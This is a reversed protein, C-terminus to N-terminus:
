FIKINWARTTYTLRYSIEYRIRIQHITNNVKKKFKTYYRLFFSSRKAVGWGKYLLKKEAGFFIKDRPAIQHGGGTHRYDGFNPGFHM